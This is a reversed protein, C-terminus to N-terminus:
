PRVGRFEGNSNCVHCPNTRSTFANPRTTIYGNHCGGACAPMPKANKAAKTAVGPTTIVKHANCTDRYAIGLIESGGCGACQDPAWEDSTGPAKSRLWSSLMLAEHQADHLAHHKVGVFPAKCEPHMLRLTRISQNQYFHWPMDLHLSKFANELVANDYEPGNGWVALDGTSLTDKRQVSEIWGRLRSLAQVIDRDTPASDGWIANRADNCPERIWWAVTAPDVHRGPQALKPDIVSYFHSIHEGDNRLAIAGISLIHANTQLSLAEIDIVIHTPSM